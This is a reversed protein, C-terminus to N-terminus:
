DCSPFDPAFLCGVGSNELGRLVTPRGHPLQPGRAGFHIDFAVRRRFGRVLAGRFRELPHGGRPVRVEVGRIFIRFIRGYAVGFLADAGRAVEAPFM